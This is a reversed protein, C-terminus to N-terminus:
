ETNILRLTEKFSALRQRDLPEIPAGLHPFATEFTTDAHEARAGAIATAAEERRGLRYDAVALLVKARGTGPAAAISRKLWDIAEENRDLLLCVLGAGEEWTWRLGIEPDTEEAHRFDNLAEELLYLAIKDFGIEKMARVNWPDERLLAECALISSKYEMVARNYQCDAQLVRVDRPRQERMDKILHGVSETKATQADGSYWGNLLGVLQSNVLGLLAQPNKPDNNLAQQYFREAEAQRERTMFHSFSEAEKILLGTGNEADHPRPDILERNLREALLHGAHGALAASQGELSRGIAMIKADGWWLTVGSGAEELRLSLQWTDASRGLTGHVLYRAGPEARGVRYDPITSLGGMLREGVATTLKQADASDDLAEIRRLAILPAGGDERNARSVLLGGMIAACLVLLAAAYWRWQRGPRHRAIGAAEEIFSSGYCQDADVLRTEPPTSASLQGATQNTAVDAQCDAADFYEVADIALMYGRKPLTRLLQREKDGLAVRIDRVCQSIGDDDLNVHGWVGLLLEEKSVVTGARGLLLCLMDVAKPRLPRVQMAEDMLHGTSSDLTFGRFRAYRSAIRM